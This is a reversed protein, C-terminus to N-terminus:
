AIDLQQATCNLDSTIDDNEHDDLIKKPNHPHHHQLHNDGEREIPLVWILMLAPTASGVVDASLTMGKPVRKVLLPPHQWGRQRVSLRNALWCDRTWRLSWASLIHECSFTKVYRGGICLMTTYLSPLSTTAYLQKHLVGKLAPVNPLHKGGESYSFLLCHIFTLLVICTIYQSEGGVGLEHHFPLPLELFLLCYLRLSM